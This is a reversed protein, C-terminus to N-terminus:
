LLFLLFPLFISFVFFAYQPVFLVFELGALSPIVLMMMQDSSRTITKPNVPTVMRQGPERGTLLLYHARTRAM